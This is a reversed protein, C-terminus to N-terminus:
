QGFKPLAVLFIHSVIVYFFGGSLCFFQKKSAPLNLGWNKMRVVKDADCFRLLCMGIGVCNVFFIEDLVYFRTLTKKSFSCFNNLNLFRSKKKM